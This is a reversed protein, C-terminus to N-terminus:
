RGSQFLNAIWRLLDIGTPPALLDGEAPLEGVGAAIAKRRADRLEEHLEEAERRHAKELGGSEIFDFLRTLEGRDFYSGHNRCVDLVIGSGRVYNTRNMMKSCIPCRRYSVAVAGSAASAPTGPLTDFARMRARAAAGDNVTEVAAPSLWLGGCHDCEDFSVADLRRPTMSAGCGACTLREPRSAIDEEPLRRGCSRCNRDGALNLDFCAACRRTAVTSGCRPCAREDPDLGGGCSPCQLAKIM